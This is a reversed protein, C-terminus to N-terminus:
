NMFHLTTVISRMYQIKDPTSKLVKAIKTDDMKAVTYENFLKRMFLIFHQKTPSINSSIKLDKINLQDFIQPISEVAVLYMINKGDSNVEFKMIGRPPYPTVVQDFLLELRRLELEPYRNQATKIFDDKVFFGVYSKNELSKKLLREYLNKIDDDKKRESSITAGLANMGELGSLISPEVGGLSMIKQAIRVANVLMIEDDDLLKQGSQVIENLKTILKGINKIGIESTCKKDEFDSPSCVMFRDVNILKYINPKDYVEKLKPILNHAYIQRYWKLSEINKRDYYYYCDLKAYSYPDSIIESKYTTNSPSVSHEELIPADLVEKEVTKKVKEILRNLFSPDILHQAIDEESSLFLIPKNKKGKKNKYHNFLREFLAEAILKSGNKDLFNSIELSIEKTQDSASISKDLERYMLVLNNYKSLTTLDSIKM